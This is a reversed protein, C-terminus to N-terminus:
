QDNKKILRRQFSLIEKFCNIEEIIKELEVTQLKKVLKGSESELRELEAESLAQRHLVLYDIVARLEKETGSSRRIIEDATESEYAEFKRYFEEDSGKKSKM